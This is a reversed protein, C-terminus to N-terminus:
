LMHKCQMQFSQIYDGGQLMSVATHIMEMRYDDDKHCYELRLPYVHDHEFNVDDYLWELTIITDTYDLLGEDLLEQEKERDGIIRVIGIFDNKSDMETVIDLPKFPHPIFHFKNTFNNKGEMLIDPKNCGYIEEIRGKDDLYMEGLNSDDEDDNMNTNTTLICKDIIFGVKLQKGIALAINFDLTYSHDEFIKDEPIYEQVVYIYKGGQNEKFIEISKRFGKIYREVDNALEGEYEPLLNDFMELKEELTYYWHNWIITAWIEDTPEYGEKEWYEKVDKSLRIKSYIDSKSM